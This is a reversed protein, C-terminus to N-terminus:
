TQSSVTVNCVGRAQVHYIIQTGRQEQQILTKLCKEIKEVFTEENEKKLRVGDRLRYFLERYDLTKIFQRALSPRSLDFGM